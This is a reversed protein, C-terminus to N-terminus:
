YYMIFQLDGRKLHKLKFKCLTNLSVHPLKFCVVTPYSLPFGSIQYQQVCCNCSQTGYKGAWLVCRGMLLVM